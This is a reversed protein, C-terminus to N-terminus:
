AGAAIILVFTQGVAGALLPWVNLLQNSLNRPETLSPIFISPIIFYTVSLYLVFNESL